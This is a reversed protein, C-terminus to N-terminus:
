TLRLLESATQQKCALLQEVHQKAKGEAFSSLDNKLQAISTRQSEALLPLLKRINIFNYNTFQTPFAGVLPVSMRAEELFEGFTQVANAERLALALVDATLQKDKTVSFPVAQRVYHLFGLAERRYIQQCAAVDNSM